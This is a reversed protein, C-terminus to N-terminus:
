LGHVIHYAAFGIIGALALVVVTATWDSGGSDRRNHRRDLRETIV